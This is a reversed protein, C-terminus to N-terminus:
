SSNKVIRGKAPVSPKAGDTVRVAFEQLIEPRVDEFWCVEEQVMTTQLIYEGPENPAMVTMRCRVAESADVCPFLKTRNGDFVLMRRTAKEVWHYALHVPFPPYSSISKTTGNTSETDVWFMESVRVERPVAHVELSVKSIKESSLKEMCLIERTVNLKVPKSLPSQPPAYDEYLYYHGLGGGPRLREYCRVREERIARSCLWLVHHHIALNRFFGSPGPVYITDHLQTPFTTGQVNNRLLRLQFDPWWPECTIYRGAPVVWRRPCWFHTLQTTKLIQRWQNQQWEPSLQEDREILFVWDSECARAMAALDWQYWEDAKHHHVRSGVEKARALTGPTVRNQDIFIVLEDFVDRVEAMWPMAEESLDHTALMANVRMITPLSQERLLLLLASNM